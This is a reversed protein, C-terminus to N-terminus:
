ATLVLKQNMFEEAAWRGGARGYGSAKVGGFGLQPSVDFGRNIFTM